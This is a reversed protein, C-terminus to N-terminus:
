IKPLSIPSHTSNEDLLYLRELRSWEDAAARKPRVFYRESDLTESVQESPTLGLQNIFDSRLKFRRLYPWAGPVSNHNFSVPLIDDAILEYDSSGLLGATASR